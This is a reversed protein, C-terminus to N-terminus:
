DEHDDKKLATADFPPLPAEPLLWSAYKELWTQAAPTSLIRTIGTSVTLVAAVWPIATWGFQEAIHPLVPLFGLVSAIFTRLTARWPHRM